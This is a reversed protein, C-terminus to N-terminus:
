SNNGWMAKDHRSKLIPIQLLIIISTFLLGYLTNTSLTIKDSIDLNIYGSLKEINIQKLLATDNGLYFSCIVFVLAIAAAAIWGKRSILPTYTTAKESAEIKQMVQHLFGPSPQELQTEKIAEKIYNENHQEIDM